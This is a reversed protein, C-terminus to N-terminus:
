NISNNKVVIDKLFRVTYKQGPAISAMETECNSSSYKFFNSNETQCIMTEKGNEPLALRYEGQISIEKKKETTYWQSVHDNKNPFSEIVVENCSYNLTLPGPRRQKYAIYCPKESVQNRITDPPLAGADTYARVRKVETEAMDSQFRVQQTKERELQVEVPATNYLHNGYTAIALGLISIVIMLLRKWKKLFRDPDFNQNVPIATGDIRTVRGEYTHGQRNPQKM